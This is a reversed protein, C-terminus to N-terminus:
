LGSAARDPCRSLKLGKVMSADVRVKVGRRESVHKDNMIIFPPVIM